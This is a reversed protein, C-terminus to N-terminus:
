RKLSFHGRFNVGDILEVLYWYDTSPLPNGLYTGDWGASLPDLQKLLKGYRDFIFIKADPENEIAIVQWRDNFGDDNPTFFQPGYIIAAERSVLDCGNLDRVFVEYNGPRLGTFTPSTQYIFNDLSYEFPGSGTVEVTICNNRITFQEIQLAVITTSAYNNLEFSTTDTCGQTDTVTVEYTGEQMTEITSTTAGTNWLYAEFGATAVLTVTDDICKFAPGDIQVTPRELVELEIPAVDVCSPNDANELRVYVIQIMSENDISTPLPDNDLLADEETGYFRINFSGTQMGLIQNELSLLDFQETNDRNEDDCTMIGLSATIEPQTDVGVIVQAISFCSANGLVQIRIFINDRTSVNGYIPNIDNDLDLADNRNTYYTIEFAAPDLLGLAENGASTLDFVEVGDNNIDCQIIDAVTELDPEDNVFVDFAATVKCGLSQVASITVFFEGGGTDIQNPLPNNLNEADLANDFVQINYTSLSQAGLASTLTSTFDISEVGNGDSDCAFLDSLNQISPQAVIRINETSLYTDLPTTIAATVTYLGPTDYNHEPDPLTSTNNSGSAPDGFDWVVSSDPCFGIPDIIFLSPNMACGEVFNFAPNFFANFFPPLGEQVLTGPAVEVGDYIFNAAAGVGDPNDIVSLWRTEDRTYYIKNNSALQLAGRYTDDSPDSFDGEFITVPNNQFDSNRLDYQVLLREAPSTGNPVENLDVYLLNSDISFETGYAHYLDRYTLRIPNTVAGTANNFDFVFAGRGVELPNNLTNIGQTMMALKTGDPSVKMYGRGDREIRTSPSLSTVTQSLDLGTSTLKFAYFQDFIRSGLNSEGYVIIWIDRNNDAVAVSLKEAANGLINVNKNTAVVDGLGGDMTIDIISYNVGRDNIPFAVPATFLYYLTSSDPLPVIISSQTSSPDGLLGAGNPMVQHNRNWVQSGDSYFLLQGCADSISSCGEITSLAGVDTPVAIGADFNIGANEGFFWWNAQNQGVTVTSFFIFIIVFRNVAYIYPNSDHSQPNSRKRSLTFFSLGLVFRPSEM